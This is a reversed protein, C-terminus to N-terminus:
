DALNASTVPVTRLRQGPSDAPSKSHGVGGRAASNLLGVLGPSLDYNCTDTNQPAHIPVEQTITRYNIKINAKESALDAALSLRASNADDLSIRLADLKVQEEARVRDAAANLASGHRWGNVSWGASFALLAAGAFAYPGGFISM